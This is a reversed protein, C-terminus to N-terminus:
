TGGGAPLERLLNAMQLAVLGADFGRNGKPGGARALADEMSECALVEFAVPVSFRRAVEACGRACERAILDFHETEGRVIAGLAVIADCTGSAALRQAALPIEFAGPVSAVTIADEAVGNKKLADLCGQLLRQAVNGHFRGVVVGIRRGSGSLSGSFARM